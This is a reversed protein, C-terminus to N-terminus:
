CAKDFMEHQSAGFVLSHFSFLELSLSAVPLEQPFTSPNNEASDSLSVAM